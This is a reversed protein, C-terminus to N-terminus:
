RRARRRNSPIPLSGDPGDLLHTYPAFASPGTLRGQKRLESRLALLVETMGIRRTTAAARFAAALGVSRIAAGTLKFQGALFALDLDDVPAGPPFSTEWLRRRECEDPPTFEVHVHIRRLFADDINSAYNTTLVAVGDYTELRQLLYSTEVNAYRDNADSVESRKGFVADAEDFVLVMRGGEAARFVAELNKETEGIYKSVLAALDIRFLDLGLAGAIVEASLTKGTGPPGAFLAVVGASPVPRFGWEGYVRSRHEYREVVDRVQALQEAPLVLEDWTRRRRIRTALRDLDGSALRRVAATIEADPVTADPDATRTTGGALVREAQRVQHATLRHAVHAGPGFARAIEPTTAVSEDARVERWPRRPLQDVPLEVRSTLAWVLHGARETWRRGAPDLTDDLELVIARGTVTAERVVAQWGADDNPPTTVLFRGAAAHETAVQLRRAADPGPVLVLEDVGGGPGDLWSVGVPLSPTVSGDGLVAWAVTEDLEVPRRAWPEADPVRVLCSRVLCGDPAVAALGAHGPGLLRRLLGLTVRHTREGHLEAVLAQLGADLEVAVALALVEAADRGARANAVIAGLPADTALETALAARAAAVEAAQKRDPAGGGARCAREAELVARAFRDSAGISM